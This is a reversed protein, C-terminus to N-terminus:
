AAVGERQLLIDNFDRGDGPDACRVEIQPFARAYREAARELANRTIARDSDGDRLLVLSRCSEPLMMLPADGRPDPGKIMQPRVHGRSDTRTADPHVVMGAAPGALVDLSLCARFESGALLPSIEQALGLRAALVTEIGEGAIIRLPAPDGGLYVYGGGMLGRMKRANLVEGTAPDVIRAKGKPQTLDIWTLHVGGFRGDPRIVGAVLAPGRWIVASDHWFPLDAIFRLGAGAPADLGRYRLYEAALTGAIPGSADWIKRARRREDERFQDALKERKAKEALAANERARLADLRAAKQEPTEAARGDPPPEGTLRECAALFDLGELHYLLAIADGGFGSKRCYFVNKRFDVSFSDRSHACAPCPMGANSRYRQPLVGARIAADQVSVARARAIWDRMEPTDRSPQM